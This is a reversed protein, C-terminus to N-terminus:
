NVLRAFIGDLEKKFDLVPKVVLGFASEEYKYFSGDRTIGLNEAGLDWDIEMGYEDTYFTGTEPHIKGLSDIEYERVAVWSQIAADSANAGAYNRYQEITKSVLSM